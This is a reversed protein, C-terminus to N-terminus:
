SCAGREKQLLLCPPTKVEQQRSLSSTILWVPCGSKNGAPSKFSKTTGANRFPVFTLCLGRFPVQSLFLSLGEEQYFSFVSPSPLHGFEKGCSPDFLTFSHRKSCLLLYGQQEQSLVSLLTGRGLRPLSLCLFHQRLRSM